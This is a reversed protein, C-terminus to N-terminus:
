APWLQGRKIRLSEARAPAFTLLELLEARLQEEPSELTTDGFAADSVKAADTLLARCCGRLSLLTMAPDMM